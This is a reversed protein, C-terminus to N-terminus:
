RNHLKVYKVILATSVQLKHSVIACAVQIHSEDKLKIHGGELVWGSMQMLEGSGAYQWVKSIFTKSSISLQRYKDDNPHQIINDFIRRLTSLTAERDEPNVNAVM